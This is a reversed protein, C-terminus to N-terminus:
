RKDRLGDSRSSKTNRARDKVRQLLRRTRGGGDERSNNGWFFFSTAARRFPFPDELSTRQSETQLKEEQTLQQRGAAPGDRGDSRKSKEATETAWKRWRDAKQSFDEPPLDIREYGVEVLAKWARLSAKIDEEPAKIWNVHETRCKGIGCIDSHRKGFEVLVLDRVAWANKCELTLTPQLECFRKSRSPRGKRVWMKSYEKRPHLTLYITGQRNSRKKIEKLVRRVGDDIVHMDSSSAESRTDATSNATSAEGASQPRQPVKSHSANFLPRNIPKHISDFVEEDEVEALLKVSETQRRAPAPSLSYYDRKYDVFEPDTLPTVGPTTGPTDSRGGRGSFISSAESASDDIAESVKTETFAYRKPVVSGRLPIGDMWRMTEALAWRRWRDERPSFGEKVINQSTGDISVGATYFMRAYLSWATVSDLIDQLRAEFWENHMTDEGKNNPCDRCKHMRRFQRFEDHVLGEMLRANPCEVFCHLELGPYCKEHEETVRKLHQGHGIKFKGKAGKYSFVYLHSVQKGTDEIKRALASRIKQDIHNPNYPDIKSKPSTYNKFKIQENSNKGMPTRPEAVVFPFNMDNKWQLVAAAIKNEETHTECLRLRAIQELIDARDAGDIANDDTLKDHLEQIESVADLSISKICRRSRGYLAACRGNGDAHDKLELCQFQVFQAASM